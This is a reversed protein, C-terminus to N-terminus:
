LPLGTPSISDSLLHSIYGIILAFFVLGVSGRSWMPFTVLLVCMLGILFLLVRLSHFVHRHEPTDPPELTDPILGGIGSFVTLICYTNVNVSTLDFVFLGLLMGTMVGFCFHERSNM